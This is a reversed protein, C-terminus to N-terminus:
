YGTVHVLDKEDVIITGGGTLNEFTIEGRVQLEFKESTPASAIGEQPIRINVPFVTEKRGPIGQNIELNLEGIEIEGIFYLERITKITTSLLNPNDLHIVSSLEFGSSSIRRWEFDSHKVLRVDKRNLLFLVLVLAVTIVVGARRFNM